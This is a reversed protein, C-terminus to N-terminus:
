GPYLYKEAMETDCSGNDRGFNWSFTYLFKRAWRFVHVYSRPYAARGCFFLLIGTTSISDTTRWYKNLIGSRETSDRIDRTAAILIRPSRRNKRSYRATSDLIFYTVLMRDVKYPSM